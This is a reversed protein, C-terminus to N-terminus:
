DVVLRSCIYISPSFTKRLMIVANIGNIHLGENLMDVAIIFGCKSSKFAELEKSVEKNSLKSHIAYVPIESFSKKIMLKGTNISKISDVFVIGKVTNPNQIHKKM